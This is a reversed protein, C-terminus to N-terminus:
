PQEAGGADQMAESTSSEAEQPEAAPEDTKKGADEPEGKGEIQGKIAAPEVGAERQQLRQRMAEYRQQEKAALKDVLAIKDADGTKHALERIRSLRAVRDRHKAEEHAMQKAIAKSQQTKGQGQGKVEPKGAAEQGKGKDKAEAAKAQAEEKRKMAEARAAEADKKAKELSANRAAPDEVGQLGEKVEAAKGAAPKSKAQEAMAKAKDVQEKAKDAAGQGQAKAKEQAQAAALGVLLVVAAALLLLKRSM